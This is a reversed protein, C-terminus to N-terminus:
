HIRADVRYALNTRSDFCFMAAGSGTIVMARADVGNEIGLEYLPTRAVNEFDYGITTFSRNKIYGGGGHTSSFRVDEEITLRNRPAVNPTVGALFDILDERKLIFCDLDQRIVLRGRDILQFDSADLPVASFPGSEIRVFALVRVRRKEHALPVPFAYSLGIYQRGRKTVQRALDLVKQHLTTELMNSGFPALLRVLVITLNGVSLVEAKTLYLLRSDLTTEYDLCSSWSNHESTPDVSLDLPLQVQPTQTRIALPPSIGSVPPPPLVSKRGFLTHILSALM